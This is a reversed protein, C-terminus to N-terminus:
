FNPMNVYTLKSRFEFNVKTKTRISELALQIKRRIENKEAVFMPIYM